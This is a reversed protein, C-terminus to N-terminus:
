TKDTRKRHLAADIAILADVPAAFLCLDRLTRHISTVRLGNIATVENSALHCRRVILGTRSRRGSAKPLAIELFETTAPNLGHMWAATSCAFVADAPLKRSWAALRKWDM